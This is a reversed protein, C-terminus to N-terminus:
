AKRLWRGLPISIAFLLASLVVIAGSIGIAIQQHQYRTSIEWSLLYGSAGTLFAIGISYWFMQRLNKALNAATAAPVILLGNILLTGTIQQSLNVMLALLVILLYRCLRVPVRRSLALSPNASSLMLWNYTIVLFISMGIALGILLVVQWPKASMPNGFIFDEISFFQRGSVLRTFVAGVGVSGAYFVGIVTDSALGTQDRVFAILLGIAVGFGVMILMIRQRIVADQIAMEEPTMAARGFFAEQDTLVSILLGLGVGAFACHALADSFFSMRNGVVLSGMAGCIFCVILTALLGRVNFDYNLFTDDPWLLTFQHIASNLIAGLYDLM